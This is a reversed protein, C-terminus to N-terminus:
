IKSDQRRSMGYEGIEFRPARVNEIELRQRSLHLGVDSEWMKGDPSCGVVKTGRLVHSRELKSKLGVFPCKEYRVEIGFYLLRPLKKHFLFVLFQRYSILTVRVLGKSFVLKVM